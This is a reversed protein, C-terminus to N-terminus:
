FSKVMSIVLFRQNSRSKLIGKKAIDANAVHLGITNKHFSMDNVRGLRLYSAVIRNVIFM